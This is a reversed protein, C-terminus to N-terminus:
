RVIAGMAYRARYGLASGLLLTGLGGVIENVFLTSHGKTYDFTM